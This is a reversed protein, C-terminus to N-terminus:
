AQARSQASGRLTAVDGHTEVHIHRNAAPADWLLRLRLRAALSRDRLWGSVSSHEEAHVPSAAQRSSVQSPAVVLENRVDKVGEIERALTAALDREVDNRVPGRLRAVGNSFTVQVHFPALHQELMQRTRADDTAQAAPAPEATTQAAAAPEAAYPMAPVMGLMLGIVAMSLRLSAQRM